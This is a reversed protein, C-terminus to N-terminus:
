SEGKSELYAAWRKRHMKVHGEGFRAAAAEIYELVAREGGYVLMNDFFARGDNLRSPAWEMFYPLVRRGEKGGARALAISELAFDITRADTWSARYHIKGGRSVIYTMNPLMGYARHVSGELDAVLMRRKIGFEAAMARAASIKDELSQHPGLVEGPHAERTYVFV